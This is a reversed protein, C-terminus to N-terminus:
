MPTFSVDPRSILQIDRCLLIHSALVKGEDVDGMKIRAVALRHRANIDLLYHGQEVGAVGEGMVSRTGLPIEEGDYERDDECLDWYRQDARGQLWRCGKRISSIAKEYEGQTNYLDALVLIELLTFGGGPIDTPPTSSMDILRGSPYMTQYHDFAQQFLITCTPLDSLEILIPRLSTLVAM